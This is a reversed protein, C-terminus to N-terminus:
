FRPPYTSRFGAEANESPVIPDPQASKEQPDTM